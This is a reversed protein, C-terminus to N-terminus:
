LSVWVSAFQITALTPRLASSQQEGQPTLALEAIGTHQGTLSWVTEGHRM